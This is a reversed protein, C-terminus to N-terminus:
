CSRCTAESTGPSIGGGSGNALWDADALKEVKVTLGDHAKLRAEIGRADDADNPFADIRWIDRDEDEELISYTAGELLIDSDIAEAAAEAAAKDAEIKAAVARAARLAAAAAVLPLLRTLEALAAERDWPENNRQWAWRPPAEPAAEPVSIRPSPVVM